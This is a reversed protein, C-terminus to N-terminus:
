RFLYFKSCADCHIEQIIYAAHDISGNIYTVGRIGVEPM